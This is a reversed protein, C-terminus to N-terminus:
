LSPSATSFGGGAAIGGITGGLVAALAGAGIALGSGVPTLGPILSPTVPDPSGVQAITSTVGRMAFALATAKKSVVWNVTLGDKGVAAVAEGPKFGTAGPELRMVYTGPKLGDIAYTGDIKSVTETAAPPAPSNYSVPLFYPDAAGAKPREVVIRMGNVSQGQATKISGQLDACWGMSALALGGALWSLIFLTRHRM